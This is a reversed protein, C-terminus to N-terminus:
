TVLLFYRRAPEVEASWTASGGEFTGITEGYGAAFAPDTSAEITVPAGGDWLITYDNATEGHEAAVSGITTDAETETSPQTCAALSLALAVCSIALRM